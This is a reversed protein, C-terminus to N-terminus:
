LNSSTLYDIAFGDVCFAGRAAFAPAKAYGADGCNGANEVVSAKPLASRMERYYELM